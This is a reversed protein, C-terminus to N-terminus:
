QRISFKDGWLRTMFGEATQATDNFTEKQFDRCCALMPRLDDVIMEDYMLDNFRDETIEGNEIRRFHIHGCNPCHVRHNGNLSVNLKVDFYKRCAQCYFEVIKRM